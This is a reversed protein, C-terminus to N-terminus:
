VRVFRVRDAGTLVLPRDAPAEFLEGDIMFPGDLSLEIRTAGRSLYGDPLGSRDPGYLLRRAHRVLGAAPHAVSTYRIPRDGHNWFPQMGLVLRDLTTALVLLQRSRVAPEGDLSLALEHGELVGEPLRGALWRLLLSALAAGHAWEGKLGLPHIRDCVWAIVDCMGATGFCMGRQPAGGRPNEVRLVHRAAVHRELDGDAVCAVLRELTRRGRGRLGVDGATMNAMGRPLIALLPLRAFPRAELLATLVRQVTGDGGNVVLLGVERQALGRLVEVIERGDELREHLLEPGGTGDGCLDDVGRRNRQSRPNSLLGIRLRGAAPLIAVPPTRPARAVGAGRLLRDRELPKVESSVAAAM